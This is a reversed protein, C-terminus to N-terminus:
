MGGEGNKDRFNETWKQSNYRERWAPIRQEGNARASVAVDGLLPQVGFGCVDRVM